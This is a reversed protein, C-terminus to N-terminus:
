SLERINQFSLWNHPQLAEVRLFYELGCSVAFLAVWNDASPNADIEALQFVTKNELIACLKGFVGTELTQFNSLDRQFYGGNLM